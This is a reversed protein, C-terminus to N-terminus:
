HFESTVSTSAGWSARGCTAAIYHGSPRLAFLKTADELIYTKGVCRIRSTTEPSQEGRQEEYIIVVQPDLNGSTDYLETGDPSRIVVRLDLLWESIAALWAADSGGIITIASISKRTVEGLGRLAEAMSSPSACSRRTATTGCFEHDQQYWAHPNLQMLKEVLVGFGSTTFTGACAQVLSQWQLVSPTLEPPADLAQVLNNLIEASLDEHYFESLTGCLALCTLGQTTKPLSRVVHRTGFGFWLINGYSGYSPLKALANLVNNRGAASPELQSCIAQGVQLTYSDVGAASYRSLVDLSFSVTHAALQVWDISGQQTFGAKSSEVQSSNPSNTM